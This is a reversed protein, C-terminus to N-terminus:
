KKKFRVGPGGDKNEGSALFIVGEKELAARLPEMTHPYMEGKGTEYRRITSEGIGSAEALDKASWGVGVRAMRLQAPAIVPKPEFKRGM